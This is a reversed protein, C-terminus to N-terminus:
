NRRNKKYADPDFFVIELPVESEGFIPEIIKDRVFNWDGGALGCGLLGPIAVSYNNEKAYAELKKFGRYLADYDTDIKDRTPVNEGFIGCIIRNSGDTTGTNFLTGLLDSASYADCVNRYIKYDEKSMLKNKLQLAVGAGMAGVCNIQHAIVNAKTELLNGTKETIM